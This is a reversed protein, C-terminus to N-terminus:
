TKILKKYALMENQCCQSTTFRGLAWARARAGMSGLQAKQTLAKSITQALAQPSDPAVLWGTQENKVTERSGGINTAIVPKGLMQSEVAVRGFAEPQISCSFLLTSADIYPATDAVDGVFTIRDAIGAKQAQQQLQKYYGNNGTPGGVILAHWKTNKLKELAAIFVHQGKWHTLRGIHTLIPGANAPVGLEKLLTKRDTSSFRLPNFIDPEAGRQAVLIHDAPYGYTKVIHQKIFLSNAIVWPGKLMVRNYARKLWNGAGYTGHFTTIFQTHPRAKHALWAAWAPARSRAHLIDVGYIDIVKILKRSNCWISWPMKRHLPLMIHNIGNNALINEKSGGKSAVLSTFGHSKLYLALDVASQETGGTNLAPLLQLVITPKKM